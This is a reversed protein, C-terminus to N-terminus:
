VLGRQVMIAVIVIFIVIAAFALAGLVGLIQGKRRDFPDM